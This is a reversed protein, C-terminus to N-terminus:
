GTEGACSGDPIESVLPFPPKIKTKRKMQELRDTRNTKSAGELLDFSRMEKRTEKGHGKILHDLFLLFISHKDSFDYTDNITVTPAQFVEPTIVVFLM